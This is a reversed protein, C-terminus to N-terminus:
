KSYINTKNGDHTFVEKLNSGSVSWEASNLDYVTTSSSKPVDITGTINSSGIGTPSIMDREFYLMVGGYRYVPYIELTITMDNCSNERSCYWTGVFSSYKNKEFLEILEESDLYSEPLENLKKIAEDFDGDYALDLAEDYLSQSKQEEELTEQSKGCGTVLFCLM